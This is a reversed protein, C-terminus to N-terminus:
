KILIEVRRNYSRGSLSSNSDIPKKEGFAKFELRNEPVGLFILYDYVSKARNFSLTYNHADSGHSDTHGHVEFVYEPHDLMLRATSQLSVKATDTLAYSDIDFYVNELVFSNGRKMKEVEINLLSPPIYREDDPNVFESYYIYGEKEASLIFKDHPEVPVSVAYNGTSDEVMGYTKKDTKINQVVIRVHTLTDGDKGSVRGKVLLVKGPKVADPTQTAFIDLNSKKSLKDSAFYIREGDASVSFALDDYESNLPYGINQPKSWGTLSDYQSMFVDFGGIGFRGNSAFYLTKGDPHIFPTIDDGASNITPGLNEAPMWKGDADKQSKYIDIKGYGDERISAFYLTNGDASVSPQSEFTMGANVASGLRKLSTWEGKLKKSVYIDCNKYSTYAGREIGCISIYMTKNDVTLSAAGQNRGDNFPLPMKIGESYMAELEGKPSLKKSATFEEVYSKDEAYIRRTYYMYSEDPSVLPLYEDNKTNIGSLAVPSFDVPNNVLRLYEDVNRRILEADKRMIFKKTRGIYYDFYPKSEAYKKQNYLIQSIYFHAEYDEYDDCLKIVRKFERLAKKQYEQIKETNPNKQKRLSEAKEFYIGGLLFHAEKHKSEVRVAEELLIVARSKSTKLESIAQNYLKVSKKNYVEGCNEQASLNTSFLLNLSAFILLIHFGSKIMFLTPIDFLKYM